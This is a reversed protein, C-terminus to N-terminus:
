VLGELKLNEISFCCCKSKRKIEVGVIGNSEDIRERQIQNCGVLFIGFLEIAM